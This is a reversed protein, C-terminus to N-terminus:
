VGVEVFPISNSDSTIGKRKGKYFGDKLCLYGKSSDGLNEWVLVPANHTYHNIDFLEGEETYVRTGFGIDAQFQYQTSLLIRDTTRKHIKVDEYVLEATRDYSTMTYTLEDVTDFCSIDGIFWVTDSTPTQGTPIYFRMYRYNFGTLATCLQYRNTITDKSITITQTFSPATWVDTANGQITVSTFNCYRLLIAAISKTSGFDLRVLWNAATADNARFRRLMHWKDTINTVPYGTYASRATPTYTVFDNSFIISM